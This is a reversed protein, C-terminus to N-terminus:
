FLDTQVRKSDTGGDESAGSPCRNPVCRDLLNDAVHALMFGAGAAAATEYTGTDTVTNQIAEVSM